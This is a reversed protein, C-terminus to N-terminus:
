TILRWLEFTAVAIAATIRESARRRLAVVLQWDVAPEDPRAEILRERTFGTEFRADAALLDVDALRKM